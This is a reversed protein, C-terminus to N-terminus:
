MEEKNQTTPFASDDETVYELYFRLVVTPKLHPKGLDQESIRKPFISDVENNDARDMNAM